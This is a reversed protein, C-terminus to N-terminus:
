SLLCVTFGLDPRTATALWVLAGVLERYPINRMSAIEAPTSPSQHVSLQANPDIPVSVPKCDTMGFRKLIKDVYSSQALSLTCTARNRIVEISLLWSVAGLRTIKFLREIEDQVTAILKTSTGTITSDDVHIAIICIENNRVLRYVAHDSILPHFGITALSETLKLYWKRSSQKLGYITKRLRIVDKSPDGIAYDPPQEMYLKEDDSFLGNLFAGHFDILVIDWDYRVAIALVLRIMSIKATPSFTDFYDVGPVQTFGRAVLRAKYKSIGGHADRKIKLAWKCSVVTRDNPRPVMQDGFTGSTKMNEMEIDMAAKFLPWDPRRKAEELSPQDEDVSDASFAYVLGDDRGFAANAGEARKQHRTRGAGEIINAPTIKSTIDRPAVARPEARPAAPTTPRTPPVSSLPSSATSPPLQIEEPVHHIIEESEGENLM